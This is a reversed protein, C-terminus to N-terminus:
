LELLTCIDELQYGQNHMLWDLQCDIGEENVADAIDAFSEIVLDDLKEKDDSSIKLWQEVDDRTWKGKTASM